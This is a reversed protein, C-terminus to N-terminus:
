THVYLKSYVIHGWVITIRSRGGSYSTNCTHPAIGVKNKSLTRSIKKCPYGRSM